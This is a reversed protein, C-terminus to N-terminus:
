SREEGTGVESLARPQLVSRARIARALIRATSAGSRVDDLQAEYDCLQACAETEARLAAMAEDRQREATAVCSKWLDRQRGAEVAHWREGILEDRAEALERDKAELLDKPADALTRGSGVLASLIRAEYDAQAAAKAEDLTDYGSVWRSGSGLDVFLAYKGRVLMEGTKISYGLRISALNAYWTPFTTSAHPESWELPKVLIQPVSASAGYFDASM